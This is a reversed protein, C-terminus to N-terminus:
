TPSMLAQAVGAAAECVASEAPTARPGVPVTGGGATLPPDVAGVCTAPILAPEICTAGDCRTGCALSALPAFSVAEDCAAPTLAVATRSAAAVPTIGAHIGDKADNCAAPVMGLAPVGNSCVADDPTGNATPFIGADGAAQSAVAGDVGSCFDNNSRARDAEGDFVM